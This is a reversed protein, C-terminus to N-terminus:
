SHQGGPLMMCQIAKLQSDVLSCLAMHGRRGDLWTFRFILGQQGCERVVLNLGAGTPM